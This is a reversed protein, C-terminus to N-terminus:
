QSSGVDKKIMYVYEPNVSGVCENGALFKIHTGDPDSPRPFEIKDGLFTMTKMGADPTFGVTYTNM